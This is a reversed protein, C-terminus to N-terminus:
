YAIVVTLCVNNGANTAVFCTSSTITIQAYHSVTIKALFENTLKQVTEPTGSIIEVKKM